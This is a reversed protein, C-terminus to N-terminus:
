WVSPKTSAICIPANGPYIMRQRKLNPYIYHKKKKKKIINSIHLIFQHKAIFGQHLKGLMNKM